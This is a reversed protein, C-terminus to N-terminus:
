GRIGGKPLPAFQIKEMETVSPDVPNNRRANNAEAAAEASYYFECMEDNTVFQDVARLNDCFVRDHSGGSSKFDNDGRHEDTYHHNIEHLVVHKFVKV